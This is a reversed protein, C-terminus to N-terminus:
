PEDGRAIPLGPTASWCSWSTPFLRATPLGAIEMALLNHCASVGSGCSMAIERSGAAEVIPAFRAHLEAASRFTGDPNLNGGYYVPVLNAWSAPM